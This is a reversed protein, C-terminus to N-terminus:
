AGWRLAGRAERRLRDWGNMIGSGDLGGVDIDTPDGVEVAILCANPYRNRAIESPMNAVLGGDVLLMGDFALPPFLGAGLWERPGGARGRDHVFPRAAVLDCSVAAFGIPLEEINLGDAFEQIGTTITRGSLLAVGPPTLNAGGALRRSGSSCRASGRSRIVSVPWCDESWPAPAPESSETSRYAPRPRARAVGFHAFGRAGGGGLVLVNSTGTVARALGALDSRDTKSINVHSAVTRHGSGRAPRLDVPRACSWTPRSRQWGLPASRTRTRNRYTCRRCPATRSSTSAIPTGFVCAPGIPRSSIPWSCRSRCVTRSTSCGPRPTPSVSWTTVQSSWPKM